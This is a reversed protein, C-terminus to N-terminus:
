IAHQYGLSLIWVEGRLGEDLPLVFGAHFQNEGQTHLGFAVTHLFRDTVDPPDPGDLVGITALEASLDVGPLRVGGALNLRGYIDQPSNRDQDVVLDFGFDCRFFFTDHRQVTSASLRLTTTNAASALFDTVREFATSM